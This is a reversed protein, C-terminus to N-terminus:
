SLPVYKYEKSQLRDQLEPHSIEHNRCAGALTRREFQLQNATFVEELNLLSKIHLSSYFKNEITSQNYERTALHWPTFMMPLHILCLIEFLLTSDTGRAVLSRDWEQPNRSKLNDSYEWPQLKKVGKLRGICFSSFTRRSSKDSQIDGEGLMASGYRSKYSDIGGSDQSTKHLFRDSLFM